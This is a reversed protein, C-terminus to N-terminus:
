GAADDSGVWVPDVVFTGDLASQYDQVTAGLGVAVPVLRAAAGPDPGPDGDRDRAYQENRAHGRRPPWRPPSSRTSTPRRSRRRHQRALGLPVAPRPLAAGSPALGVWGTRFLQQQGTTVFRQYDALPLAKVEVPIGSRPWRCSCRALGAEGLRSRRRHRDRGDPDGRRPVGPGAAGPGCGPRLTCADGCPDITSGPVGTPIVVAPEAGPGPHGAAVM